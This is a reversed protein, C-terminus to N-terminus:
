LKIRKLKQLSFLGTLKLPNVQFLVLSGLMLKKFWSIRVRNKMAATPNKLIKGLISGYFVLMLRVCFRIRRRPLLSIGQYAEAYFNRAQASLWFFTRSFGKQELLNVPFYNRDRGKDEQIDRLINTLQMAYGLSLAAREIQPSVQTLGFVKLMMLGVVGAVQYCYTLLQSYTEFEKFNEDSEQGAMLSEFYAVPVNIANIAFTSEEFFQKAAMSSLLTHSALSLREKLSTFFDESISSASKKWLHDMLYKSFAAGVFSNPNKESSILGHHDTADDMLRCLTYIFYSRQRVPKPLIFSAAYFSHAHHKTVQQCFVAFSFDHQLADDNLFFPAFTQRAKMLTQNFATGIAQPTFAELTATHTVNAYRQYFPAREIPHSFVVEVDSTSTLYFTNRRKLIKNETIIRSQWQQNKFVSEYGAHLHPFWYVVQQIVNKQVQGLNRNQCWIWPKQMTFIPALGANHDFYVWPTEEAAFSHASKQLKHALHVDYFWSARQVSQISKIKKLDLEYSTLELSFNGVGFSIFQWLHPAPFNATNLSLFDQSKQDKEYVTNPLFNRQYIKLHILKKHSHDLLFLNFNRSKVHIFDDIKEKFNQKDQNFYLTYSYAITQQDKMWCFYASAPHRSDKAFCDRPSLILVIHQQKFFFEFYFWEYAVGEHSKELVFPSKELCQFIESGPVYLYPTSSM